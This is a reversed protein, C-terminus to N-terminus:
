PVWCRPPRSSMLTQLILLDTLFGIPVILGLGVSVVTADGTLVIARFCFYQSLFCDLFGRLLFLAFYYLITSAKVASAGTWTLQIMNPITWLAVPLLAVQVTLGVCGLLLDASYLSEDRPCEIRVQLAYSAYALGSLLAYIDGQLSEQPESTPENIESSSYDHYATLTTGLLALLCGALKWCTFREVRVLVALVFCFVGNTSTLVSASALSTKQLAILFCWNAAFWCPEVKAGVVLHQFFNWPLPSQQSPQQSLEDTQHELETLECNQHSTTSSLSSYNTKTTYLLSGAHKDHHVGHKITHDKNDGNRAQEGVSSPLWQFGCFHLPVFFLFSTAGLFAFVFPSDLEDPISDYIFQVFVSCTNWLVVALVLFCLGLRYPSIAFGNM